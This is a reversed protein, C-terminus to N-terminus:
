RVFLVGPSGCACNICGIRHSHCIYHSGVGFIILTWFPLLCRCYVVCTMIREREWISNIILLQTSNDTGHTLDKRCTQDIILLLLVSITIHPSPPCPQDTPM